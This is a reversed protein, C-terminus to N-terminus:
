GCSIWKTHALSLWASTENGKPNRSLSYLGSTSDHTWTTFPRGAYIGEGATEKMSTLVSKAYEKDGNLLSRLGSLQEISTSQDLRPLVLFHFMAKPFCDYVVINQSTQSFLVTSPLKTPDTQAYQRLVRLYAMSKWHLFCFPLVHSVRGKKKLTMSEHRLTEVRSCVM